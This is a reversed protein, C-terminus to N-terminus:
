ELKEINRHTGLAMLWLPTVRELRLCTLCRDALDHGVGAERLEALDRVGREVIHVLRTGLEDPM